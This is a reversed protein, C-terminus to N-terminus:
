DCGGRGIAALTDLEGPAVEKLMAAFSCQNLLTRIQGLEPFNLIWQWVTGFADGEGLGPIPFAVRKLCRRYMQAKAPQAIAQLMAQAPDAMTGFYDVLFEVERTGVVDGFRPGGSLLTNLLTDVHVYYPETDRVGEFMYSNSAVVAVYCTIPQDLRVGQNAATEELWGPNSKLYDRKRLAQPGKDTLLDQAVDWHEYSTAANKLTRCEMVFATDGVVLIADVDGVRPDAPDIRAKLLKVHPRVHAPSHAAALTLVQVVREEFEHGKDAHANQLQPADSSLRALLRTYECAVLPYWVLILDDGSAVLPRDWLEDRRGKEPGRSFTFRKLIQAVCDPELNACQAIVNALEAKSFRRASSATAATADRAPEVPEPLGGAQTLCCMAIFALHSWVDLMKGIPVQLQPHTVQEFPQVELATTTARQTAMARALAQLPPNLEDIRLARLAGGEPVPLRTALPGRQKLTSAMELGDHAFRRLRRFVDLRAEISWAGPTEDLAYQGARQQFVADMWQVAQWGSEFGEYFRSLVIENRLAHEHHILPERPAEVGLAKGGLAFRLPLKAGDIMGELAEQSTHREGASEGITRASLAHELAVQGTDATPWHSLQAMSANLLACLGVARDIAPLLPVHEGMTRLQDRVREM